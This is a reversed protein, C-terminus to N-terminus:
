MVFMVFISRAISVKSNDVGDKDDRIVKQLERTVRFLQLDTLYQEYHKAELGYHHAEWDILNIKRRFQKIKSLVGIKEKGLERIRTNYKAVVDVPLLLSNSYDTVVADRDVEDQGQRLCVIIDLDSDLASLARLASEGLARVDTMSRTLLAEELEVIELKQKFEAIEFSLVKFEIEKEIRANRLEQLKSWYFQDVDFGEPCDVEMSLPIMQPILSEQMKKRKEELVLTGYYPDKDKSSPKNEVEESSRLAAAAQQMPGLSGAGGGAAGSVNKSAKLKNAGANRTSKGGDGVTSSGLASAGKRSKSSNHKGPGRSGSRRNKQSVSASADIESQEGFNEVASVGYVSRPYSRMRYLSTFIKLKDQDFINNCLNQLDRKFSKDMQRGDEDIIACKHKMEDLHINFKEIKNRIESRDKRLSQLQEESQKLIKWNHEIKATNFGLRAIYLEHSLIERNVLVKLRSMEELKEDFAKCADSIEGKLKKMEQELAKRYNNQEEQLAKLKQQYADYEKLQHENMEAVTLVDMWDPKVLASAEAFVDRKVELTGHM